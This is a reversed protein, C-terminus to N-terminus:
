ADVHRMMIRHIIVRRTFMYSPLSDRDTAIVDREINRECRLRAHFLM